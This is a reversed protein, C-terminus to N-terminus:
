ISSFAGTIFANQNITEAVDSRCVPGKRIHRNLSGIRVLDLNLCINLPPRAQHVLRNISLVRAITSLTQLIKWHGGVIIARNEGETIRLQRIRKKSKQAPNHRLRGPHAFSIAWM